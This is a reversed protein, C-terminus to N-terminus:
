LMTSPLGVGGSAVTALFKEREVECIGRVRAGAVISGGVWAGLSKVGRILGPPLSPKPNQRADLEQYRRTRDLSALWQEQLDGTPAEPDALCNEPSLSEQTLSQQPPFEQPPSEQPLSEQTPSERDQSVQPFEHSSSETPTQSLFEVPSCRPPIPPTLPKVDYKSLPPPPPEDGEEVTMPTSVKKRKSRAAKATTVINWGGKEEVLSCLEDILRGKLGPINSPGGVIVIRSLCVARVDIHCTLLTKYVLEPLSLEDQDPESESEVPTFFTHEVPLSLMSLPVNISLPKPSDITQLPILMTASGATSLTSSSSQTRVAVPSVPTPGPPVSRRTKQYLERERKHVEYTECWIVRQVLEEVYSERLRKGEIGKELLMKELIEETKKRLLKGARKTRGAAGVLGGIVRLEYIPTVVTEHWGIDVVLASRLGASM